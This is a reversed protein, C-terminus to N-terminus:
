LLYMIILLYICLVATSIHLFQTKKERREQHKVETDRQPFEGTPLNDDVIVSAANSASVRTLQQTWSGQTVTVIPGQSKFDM